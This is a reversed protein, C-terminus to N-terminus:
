LISTIIKLIERLESKATETIIYNSYYIGHKLVKAKKIIFRGSELEELLKYAYRSGIKFEDVVDIVTSTQDIQNKHGIFM